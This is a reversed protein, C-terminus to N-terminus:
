CKIEKNLDARFEYKHPDGYDLRADSVPSRSDLILREVCIDIEYAMKDAKELQLRLRANEEIAEVIIGGMEEVQAMFRERIDM